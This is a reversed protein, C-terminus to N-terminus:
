VPCPPARAQVPLVLRQAPLGLDSVTPETRDFVLMWTAPTPILDDPDSLLRCFPCDHDAHTLDDDACIDSLSGGAALYAQIQPTDQQSPAMRAASAVSSLAICLAAALAVLVYFPRAMMACIYRSDCAFSFSM